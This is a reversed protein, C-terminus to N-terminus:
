SQAQPILKVLGTSVELWVDWSERGSKRVVWGVKCRGKPTCTAQAGALDYPFAYCRNDGPVCVRADAKAMAATIMAETLQPETTV